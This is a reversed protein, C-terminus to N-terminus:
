FEHQYALLALRYMCSSAAAAPRITDLQALRKTDAPQCHMCTQSDDAPAQWAPAAEDTRTAPFLYSGGAV